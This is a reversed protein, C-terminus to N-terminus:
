PESKIIPPLYKELQSEDRMVPKPVYMRFNLRFTEGEPAPLWNATGEKPPTSQINLTLSGDDNYHLGKSRDGISYRDIPNDILNFDSTYITLSWFADVPPLYGAEFHLTYDHSGDLPLGQGDHYSHFYMGEQPDHVVLGQIAGEARALYDQGFSGGRTDVNWMTKSKYGRNKVKWAIIDAASQEARLMGRKIAPDISGADFPRDLYMGIHALSDWIGLSGADQPPNRQALEVIRRYASLEGAKNAEAIAPLNGPQRIGQQVALPLMTFQNQVAIVNSVDKPGDVLIRMAIFGQNSPLRLLQMGDPLEGQWDPGALLYDGAAQGTTRTGLYAVNSLNADVIQITYYREGVAPLALVLPEAALDYFATSYLTDVNPSGGSRTKPNQLQRVHLWENYQVGDNASESFAMMGSRGLLTTLQASSFRFEELRLSPLGYLYAQLGYGYGLQEKAFEDREPDTSARMSRDGAVGQSAAQIQKAIAQRDAESTNSDSSNDTSSDASAASTFMTASLLVTALAAQTFVRNM